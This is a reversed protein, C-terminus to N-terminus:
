GRQTIRYLTGKFRDGGPVGARVMETTFELGAATLTPKLLGAPIRDQDTLLCKGGPQLVKQILQVLPEVNATEYILDSAILWPFSLGPPPNKWDLQLTDFQTFGNARANQAAFELATADYDSFTVQAGRSLAAVGGLGLGCGIELVRAGKEMPERLLVKGLMNAAPWLDAWYPIHRNNELEKLILPHDLMRDTSSPKGIKFEIKELIVKLWLTPGLASKPTAYPLNDTM